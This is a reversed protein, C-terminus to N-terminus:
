RANEFFLLFASSRIRDATTPLRDPGVVQLTEQFVKEQVDPFALMLLLAFDLTATTSTAGGLFLDVLVM